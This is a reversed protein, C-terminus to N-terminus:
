ESQRLTVAYDANRNFGTPPPGDQTLSVGAAELQITGFPSDDDAYVVHLTDDLATRYPNEPIKFAPYAPEDLSLSYRDRGEIDSSKVLYKTGSPYDLGEFRFRGDAGSWSVDLMGAEPSVLSVRANRVPRNFLETRVTGSLAATSEKEAPGLPKGGLALGFDFGSSRGLVYDTISAPRHRPILPRCTVSLSLDLLEGESLVSPDVTLTVIDGTQYEAKDVSIPLALRDRGRDLTYDQRAVIEGERGVVMFELPGDPFADDPLKLPRNKRIGGLFCVEGGRLVILYCPVPGAYTLRFGHPLRALNLNGDGPVTKPDASKGRGVSLRKVFATEPAAAMYRSYCRLYADGAAMDEPIDLYGYFDGQRRILKVQREMRGSKDFLEAYLYLTSDVPTHDVEDMLYAKMWIRDGQFYDEADTHVYVRELPYFERQSALRDYVVPGTQAHVALCSMVLLLTFLRIKM